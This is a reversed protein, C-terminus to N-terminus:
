QKLFPNHPSKGPPGTALIRLAWHMLGPNLGRNSFYIGCAAVLLKCAAVLSGTQHLLSWLDRPGHSLGPATFYFLAKLFLIILFFLIPHIYMHSCSHRHMHTHWSSLNLSPTDQNLAWVVLLFDLPSIRLCACVCVCVNCMSGQGPSNGYAQLATDGAGDGPHKGAKPLGMRCTTHIQMGSWPSRYM